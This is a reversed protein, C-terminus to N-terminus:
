MADWDINKFSAWILGMFDHQTQHQMHSTGSKKKKGGSNVTDLEWLVKLKCCKHTCVWSYLSHGSLGSVTLLRPPFEKKGRKQAQFCSFKM